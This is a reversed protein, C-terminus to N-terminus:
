ASLKNFLGLVLNEHYGVSSNTKNYLRSYFRIKRDLALREILQQMSLGKSCVPAVWIPAYSEATM